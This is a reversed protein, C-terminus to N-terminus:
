LARETRPAERSFCQRPANRRNDPFRLSKSTLERGTSEVREIVIVPLPLNKSELRLGLQSAMAEYVTPGAGPDTGARPAPTWDLTFLYSGTLGTQDVVMADFNRPSQEQLQDALAAMTVHHCTIHKQGVAGEGPICRQESLVAAETAQLKPGSKGFMLVYAPMIKPEKHIVLKFREELLTQLMRRLDDPPTTQGAKAVVDFRDSDMWGPGGTVTDPRAYYAMMILARMPVNHM